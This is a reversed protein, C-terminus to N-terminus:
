AKLRYWDDVVSLRSGNDLPGDWVLKSCLAMYIPRDSVGFNAVFDHIWYRRGVGLIKSSDENCNQDQELESSWVRQHDMKAPWSLTIEWTTCNKVTSLHCWILSVELILFGQIVKESTFPIDIEDWWNSWKFWFFWYCLCSVYLDIHINIYLM